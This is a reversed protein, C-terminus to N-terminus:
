GASLRDSVITGVRRGTADFAELLVPGELGIGFEINVQEGGPNPIARPPAYRLSGLEILRRNLGCITDLEARGPEVLFSPCHQPTSLRYELESGQVEGLYLTGRVGLLSGDGELAAGAPANFRVRLYGRTSDLVEVSWGELLRG